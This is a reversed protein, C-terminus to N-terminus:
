SALMAPSQLRAEVVLACCLLCLFGGVTVGVTGSCRIIKESNCGLGPTSAFDRRYEFAMRLKDEDFAAGM